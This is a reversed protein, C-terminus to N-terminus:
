TEYDEKRCAPFFRGAPRTVILEGDPAVLVEAYGALGSGEPAVAAIVVRAMADAMAPDPYPLVVIAQACLPGFRVDAVIRVENSDREHEVRHIRLFEASNM